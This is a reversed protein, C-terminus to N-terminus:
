WQVHCDNDQVIVTPERISVAGLVAQSIQRMDEMRLGRGRKCYQIWSNSRWRSVAQCTAEDVGMRALSTVIGARYSHTFVGAVSYDVDHCLLEKLTANLWLPTVLAGSSFQFVPLDSSTPLTPLAAKKWARFARVPCFTKSPLGLIEIDVFEYARKEKPSLLSLKLWSLEPAADEDSWSMRKWTLTTDSFNKSGPSLVEGVRLSGWFMITSISWLLLKNYTSLSSRKIRHKLTLLLKPTIAVRRDQVQGTHKLGNLLMKVEWSDGNFQLGQMRHQRRVTSLYSQVSAFKLGDLSCATVFNMTTFKTWPPSLDINHEREMRSLRNWVTQSMRWTNTSLSRTLLERAHLELGPDCGLVLNGTAGNRSSYKRITLKPVVRVGSRAATLAINLSHALVGYISM